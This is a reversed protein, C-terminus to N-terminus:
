SLKRVFHLAKQRRNNAHPSARHGDRNSRVRKNGSSGEGEESDDRARRGVVSQGPINTIRAAPIQDGVTDPAVNSRQTEPDADEHHRMNEDLLREILPSRSAQARM